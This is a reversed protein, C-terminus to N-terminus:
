QRGERSEAHHALAAAQGAKAAKEAIREATTQAVKNRIYEPAAQDAPVTRGAHFARLAAYALPLAHPLAEQDVTRAAALAPLRAGFAAAANGALTFPEDPLVLREPTDLSASQVTRWEGGVGDWAYDAWYIEDMRADLAALVRTASPDRRRASEACVLLTSVPVVPLGLGFALGQVAGTATRLGTFSGPGSGFAIANCDALTLGAEDFLERIAPLLRTSSVAGTQEHRVWARPEARGHGAAGVGVAASLLAVSCFETSTDLALLVTQTM